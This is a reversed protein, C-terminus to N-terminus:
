GLKVLDLDALGAAHTNVVVRDAVPRQLLYRRTAPCDFGYSVFSGGESDDIVQGWAHDSTM